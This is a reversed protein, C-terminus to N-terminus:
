ILEGSLTVSDESDDSYVVYAFNGSLDEGSKIRKKTDNVLEEITSYQRIVQAQENEIDVRKVNKGM